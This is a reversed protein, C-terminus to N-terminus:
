IIRWRTKVRWFTILFSLSFIKMLLSMNIRLESAIFFTADNGLISQMLPLTGTGSENSKPKRSGFGIVNKM